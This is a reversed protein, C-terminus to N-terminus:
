DCAPKRGYGSLLGIFAGHRCTLNGAVGPNRLPFSRLGPSSASQARGFAVLPVHLQQLVPIRRDENELGSLIFGDIRGTFVLDQYSTLLDDGEHQPFLLIHYGLAKATEVLSQQFEELVPNFYHPPNPRWSYGLLHSSQTRLHRAAANPRYDMEQVAAFIRNQVELTVQMQGRLVKSVTQYSVGARQAIDKLTANRTM